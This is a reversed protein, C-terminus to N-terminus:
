REVLFQYLRYSFVVGDRRIESIALGPQIDDGETFRQGNILVFRDVPQASYVLVSFKFEPVDTRIADPLEWYSIPAPEHKKPEQNAPAPQENNTEASSVPALPSAKAAPQQPRDDIRTAATDEADTDAPSSNNNAEKYSEVPTRPREIPSAALPDPRSYQDDQEMAVANDAIAPDSTAQNTSTPMGASPTIAELNEVVPVRYQNWFFWGCVFLAVLLLAALPGTLVADSRRRYADDAHIGPAEPRRQDKESKRLADLLISM